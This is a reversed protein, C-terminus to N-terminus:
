GARGARCARPPPSCVPPGVPSCAARSLRHAGRELDRVDQAGGSGGVPGDLGPV